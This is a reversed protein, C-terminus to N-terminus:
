PGPTGGPAPGRGPLDVGAARALEIDLGERRIRRDVYLLATAAAVFPTTLTSAVVSGLASVALAGFTAADGPDSDLLFSPISFPVAVVQTIIVVILLVLLLIGFVRWWSRKVLAASRRLSEVIGIPRVEGWTTSTTELMLAPGALAYRIYLWVGVPVALLLGIGMIAVATDSGTSGVLISVVIVGLMGGLWILTYVVTLGLLKLLRGRALRWAAGITLQEGIVARGVVVTLVGTLFITGIWGVLASLLVAAVSSGITDFVVDPDPSAGLQTLSTVDDFLLVAAVLGVSQTIVAVIASLGLMAGPNRRITTIAGDLIEGVGLPRLPIV